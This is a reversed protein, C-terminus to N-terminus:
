SGPPLELYQRATLVRIGRYERLTLLDNDGTIILQAEAKL